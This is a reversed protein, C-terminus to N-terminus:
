KRLGANIVVATWRTTESDIHRRFEEPTGGHTAISQAHLPKIVEDSALAANAAHALKDIITQPTGTPAVLGFWLVSEFAPIGAEIMTPLDPIIASRTADTVALARLKGTAVHEMVTSAPSFYGSIRGALLDTVVQPSGTYPVHVIEVQALSKLLELALHTTSAVGSSGFTISNPKAKALAVLERVSKVGLEPTVVLVTPTSTILTIPAFDKVFDFTLNTNVAANVVNAASGVFLTYGDKPARAATAAALSSAAGPRNEVVFQQGLLQGMKAGLVRASIDAVSGAPFGSIVRVPATPYDQARAAGHMWLLAAAVVVHPLRKMVRAIQSTTPETCSLVDRVGGVPVQSWM